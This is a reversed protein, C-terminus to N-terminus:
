KNEEDRKRLSLKEELETTKQKITAQFNVYGAMMALMGESIERLKEELRTLTEVPTEHAAAEAKAKEEDIMNDKLLIQRGKELLARKAEPYEEMADWLDDKSLSFLDSYGVSRVNATRRNGMKSGPINMISLEGFVVGEGLTVFVKIGDPAVVDLKGRKIIFMEKGVDGKRCVYDGPSFVQLKLKMVLDQLLGKECDQFIKVKQLTGLHVHMKMEIRLKGPMMNMVNEEDMSAKNAWLYDFWNIVRNELIDGVKRFVMYQKIADMRNQFEARAANMNTIMTGINGVISAFILIGSLFDATVFLYELPQVPQPTEGITTLTLTSWYFCYMYQTLLAPNGQYVFTDTGFGVTFSVAFFICANIHILLLIYIIVKTIRFTNPFSTRSETKDFFEFMRDIRLVRNIRVIVLCPMEEYCSGDFILFALDTPFISLLDIKSIRAQRYNARLMKSDKMMIGQDLYGEHMRIFMDVLYIFDCSYDMVIWGIPFKNELEWFISRGIVLVLNYMVAFNIVMLWYYHSDSGTDFSLYGRFRGFCLTPANEDGKANDAEYRFLEDCTRPPLPEGEISKRPKLCPFLKGPFIFDFIFQGFKSKEKEKEFNKAPLGNQSGNQNEPAVKGNKGASSPMRVTSCSFPIQPLDKGRGERCIPLNGSM